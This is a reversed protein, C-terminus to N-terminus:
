ISNSPSRDYEYENRCRYMLIHVRIYWWYNNSLKSIDASQFTLETKEWQSLQRSQSERERRSRFIRYSFFIAFVTENDFRTSSQNRNTGIHFEGKATGILTTQFNRGFTVIFSARGSTATSFGTWPVMMRGSSWWFWGIFSGIITNNRLLDSYVGSSTKKM